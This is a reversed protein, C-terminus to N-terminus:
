IVLGFCRIWARAMSLAGWRHKPIDYDGPLPALESLAQLAFSGSGKKPRTLAPHNSDWAQFASDTDDHCREFDHGDEPHDARAYSVPVVVERCNSLLRQITELAGSEEFDSRARELADFVVLGTRHPILTHGGPLVLTMQKGGRNSIRDISRSPFCHRPPPWM